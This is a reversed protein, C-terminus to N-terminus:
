PAAGAEPLSAAHARHDVMLCRDMIVTLGAAEAKAAARPNVIGLQMWIAKAGIGIAEDVVSEIAGPRRFVNVLDVPRGIAGLTPFCATGLLRSHGPNVPIVTYGQDMMYRAVFHSPREPKPSCGVVAITRCQTLIEPISLAM